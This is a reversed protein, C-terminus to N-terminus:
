GRARMEARFTANATRWRDVLEDTPEARYRAITAANFSDVDVAGAKTAAELLDAVTGDLCARNYDEVGMLHSLMDRSTWGACRSPRSWDPGGSLFRDLRGCEEDLVDFPNLRELESEDPM